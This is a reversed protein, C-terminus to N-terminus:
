RTADLLAAIKATDKVGPASEVGSSLDLGILSSNGRVAAMADALNDSSIGGSLLVPTTTKVRDLLSWDFTIGNGGPLDAGKPPKADLLLTDAIGDYAALKEFDATESVALAKIVPLGFRRKVERVRDPTEAGHLQLMTPRMTAVIDALMPDEANVTVAVTECDGAREVLAAATEPSVHRPSKPFFIFGLHSAGHDRATDIAALTSLGCIKVQM